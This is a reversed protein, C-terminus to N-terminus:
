IGMDITGGRLSRRIYHPFPGGVAAVVAPFVSRCLLRTLGHSDAYLKQHVSAPVWRNWVAGFSMICRMSQTSDTDRQAGWRFQTLGPSTGTDVVHSSLEEGDLYFTLTTGTRSYGVLCWKNLRNSFADSDANGGSPSYNDYRLTTQTNRLTFAHRFRDSAPATQCCLRHQSMSSHPYILMAVSCETTGTMADVDPLDIALHEGGSGPMKIGAGYPTTVWDSAALGGAMSAIRKRGSADFVNIGTQGLYLARLEVLGPWLEPNEPLGDRPAFGARYSPNLLSM